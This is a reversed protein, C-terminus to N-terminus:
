VTGAMFFTIDAPDTSTNTIYLTTIGDTTIVMVGDLAGTGLAKITWPEGSISNKKIQITKNTKIGLFRAVSLGNLDVEVNTASGAIKQKFAGGSDMLDNTGKWPAANGLDKAESSNESISLDVEFKVRIAM